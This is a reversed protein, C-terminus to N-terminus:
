FSNQLIFVQPCLFSLTLFCALYLYFSMAIRRLSQNLKVYKGEITTIKFPPTSTVYQPCQTDVSIKKRIKEVAM